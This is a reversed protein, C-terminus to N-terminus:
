PSLSRQLAVEAVNGGYRATRRLSDTVRAVLYADDHDGALLARDVAECREVVDDRRALAAQADAPPSGNIAAEAATEVVARADDGISGVTAGTSDGPGGDTGTHEVVRAIRVAHDAVRELQRAVLYYHFLTPRDLGLRDVEGLLVLSRNFHRTVLDFVRDADDDRGDIYRFESSTGAFAEMAAEQMSLSIYRLQLVSQRISIESPDFVSRAVLGGETGAELEVGTLRGVARDIARRHQAALGSGSTAAIEIRDYGVTYAARVAREAAELDAAGDENQDNLEIRVTALESDPGDNPSVVLSGDIHTDLYVTVGSQIDNDRAWQRPISVTYSGGGVQQVKRSEM